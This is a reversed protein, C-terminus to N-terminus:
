GQTRRLMNIWLEKQIDIYCRLFKREFRVKKEPKSSRFGNVIGAAYERGYGKMLCFVLKTGFGEYGKLRARYGIDLDELYAFHEEDFLGLKLLLSKKYIAAGACASFIREEKNYLSVDKGKGRAFAWGLACYYNGADDLRSRDDFGIMKAQCSFAKKHRRIANYLEEVFGPEAETDNNLLLCYKGSSAKIGENVAGAFGRNDPLRIIRVEPYNASTFLVSEDTSGNDVLITEFRDTTQRRLSKFVTDLFRLGNYNPIIVSIDKM